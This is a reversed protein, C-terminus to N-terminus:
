NVVEIQEPKSIVIEPADKYMQVKGRVRIKKGKLSDRLSLKLAEEVKAVNPSFIVAVFHGEHPDQSNLYVNRSKKSQGVKAVVFEITVEEGVHAKAESAAFFKDKPQVVSPGLLIPDPRGADEWASQWFSAVLWVAKSLRRQVIGGNRKWSEAPWAEEPHQLIVEKDARLVAPLDVFGSRLTAWVAAKRGAADLAVVPTESALSSSLSALQFDVLEEEFRAHAGVQNTLQGDYNETVHLPVTADELYHALEAMSLRAQEWGGTRMELVLRAYVEEIRWPLRGKPKGADPKGDDGMASAVAKPEDFGTKLLPSDPSAIGYLELDIYHQPGESPDSGRREDPDMCHEVLYSKNAMAFQRLKSPPLAHVAKETLLKHGSFGWLFSGALALAGLKSSMSLNM